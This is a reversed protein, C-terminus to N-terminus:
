NPREDDANLWRRAEEVSPFVEAQMASGNMDLHAQWMRSVGYMSVAPAAVACRADGLERFFERFSEASVVIDSSPTESTDCETLDPLICGGPRWQPHDLLARLSDMVDTHRTTGKMKARVPNM